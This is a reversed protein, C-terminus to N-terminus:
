IGMALLAAAACQSPKVSIRSFLATVCDFITM